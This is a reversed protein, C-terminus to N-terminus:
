NLSSDYLYSAGMSSTKYGIANYSEDSVELPVYMIKESTQLLSYDNSLESTDSDEKISMYKMIISFPLEASVPIDPLITGDTLQIAM